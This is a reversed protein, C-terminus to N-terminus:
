NKLLIELLLEQLNHHRNNYRFECEKVHLYVSAQQLGRFKQLRNKSLGWFGSLEDMVPRGNSAPSLDLRQLKWQKFDAIALLEFLGSYANDYAVPITIFDHLPQIIGFRYTIPWNKSENLTSPLQTICHDAIKERIKKLYHNITIRSLQTINAIQIATLDESFLNILERFKRESIHAGKLLSSCMANTSNPIPEM